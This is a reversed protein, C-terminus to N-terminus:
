CVCRVEGSLRNIESCEHVCNQKDTWYSDVSNVLNCKGTAEISKQCERGVYEASLFISIIVILIVLIGLLISIITEKNLKICYRM